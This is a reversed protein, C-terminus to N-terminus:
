KIDNKEDMIKAVAEMALLNGSIGWHCRDEIATPRSRRTKFPPHQLISSVSTPFGSTQHYFSLFWLSEQSIDEFNKGTSQHSKQTKENTVVGRLEDPCASILFSSDLDSRASFELSPDPLYDRYDRGGAM